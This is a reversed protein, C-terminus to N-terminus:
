WCPLPLALVLYLMLILRAPYAIMILCGLCWVLAHGLLVRKRSSDTDLYLWLCLLIGQGFILVEAISQSWLWQLYPAFTMLVGIMLSYWRNGKTYRLALEFSVLFLLLWRMTYLFSLGKATGLLLFGWYLPKFLVASNWAPLGGISVWLTDTGGAILANVAPYGAQEQALAM